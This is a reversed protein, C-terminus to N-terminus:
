TGYEDEEVCKAHCICGHKDWAVPDWHWRVPDGCIPCDKSDYPMYKKAIDCHFADKMPSVKM